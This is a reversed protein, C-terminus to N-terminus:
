EADIKEAIYNSKYFSVFWLNLDSWSYAQRDWTIKLRNLYPFHGSWKVNNDLSIQVQALHHNTPTAWPWRQHPSLHHRNPAWPQPNHRLHFYSTILQSLFQIHIMISSANDRLTVVDWKAATPTRLTLGLFHFFYDINKVSNSQLKLM